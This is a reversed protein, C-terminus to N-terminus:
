SSDDDQEYETSEESSESSVSSSDDDDEDAHYESPNAELYKDCCDESCFWRNTLYGVNTLAHNEHGDKYDTNNCWSCELVELNNIDNLVNERHEQAVILADGSNQARGCIVVPFWINVCHYSGRFFITGYRELFNQKYESGYWEPTTWASPEEARYVNGHGYDFDQIITGSLAELAVREHIRLPNPENLQKEIIRCEYGANSLFTHLDNAEVVNTYCFDGWRTSVTYLTNNVELSIVKTKM